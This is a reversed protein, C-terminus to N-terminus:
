CEVVESSLLAMVLLDVDKPSLNDSCLSCLDTQFKHCLYRMAQTCVELDNQNIPKGTLLYDVSVGFVQALQILMDLAPQRREQEYMGLASAGIHLLDALEAQTLGKQCRLICIREGFM